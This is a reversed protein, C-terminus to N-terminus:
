PCQPQDLQPGSEGAATRERRSLLRGAPRPGTAIAAESLADSSTPYVPLALALSTLEFTRLVARARAVVRLEAGASAAQAGAALLASVGACDCFSTRSMDAIVVRFGHGIAEVLDLRAADANAIDVEAPLSVIISGEASRGWGGPVRGRRDAAHRLDRDDSMALVGLLHPVTGPWTKSGYRGSLTV